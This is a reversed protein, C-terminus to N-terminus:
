KPEQPTPRGADAAERGREYAAGIAQKLAPLAPEIPITRKQLGADAPEVAGCWCCGHQTKYSPCHLHGSNEGNPVSPGLGGPALLVDQRGSSIEEILYAVDREIGQTFALKADTRPAQIAWEKVRHWDFSRPATEVSLRDLADAANGIVQAERRTLLGRRYLTSKVSTLQAVLAATDPTPKAAELTPMEFPKPHAAHAVGKVTFGVCAHDGFNDFLLTLREDIRREVASCDRWRVRVCDLAEDFIAHPVFPGIDGMVARVEHAIRQEEPTPSAATLADLAMVVFDDPVGFSGGKLIYGVRRSVERGTYDGGGTVPFPSWERLILTDGTRFDRDNKRVEFTKRGDAVAAFYEPWTKLEHTLAARTTTEPTM